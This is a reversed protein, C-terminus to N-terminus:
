RSWKDYHFIGWKVCNPFTEFNLVCFCYSIIFEKHVLHGQETLVYPMIIRIISVLAQMGGSSSGSIPYFCKISYSYFCQEYKFLSTKHSIRRISRTESSCPRCMVVDWFVSDKLIVAILVEFRVRDIRTTANINYSNYEYVLCTVLVLALIYGLKYPFWFYM